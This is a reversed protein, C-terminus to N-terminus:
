QSAATMLGFTLIAMSTYNCIATPQLRFDQQQPYMNECSKSNLYHGMVIQVDKTPLALMQLQCM